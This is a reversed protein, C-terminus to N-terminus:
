FKSLADRVESLVTAPGGFHEVIRTTLSWELISKQIKIRDHPDVGGGIVILQPHNAKLYELAQSLVVSGSCKFEARELQSKVNSVIYDHKGFVLAHVTDVQVPATEVLHLEM